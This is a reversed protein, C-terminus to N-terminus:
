ERSVGPANRDSGLQLSLFNAVEDIMDESRFFKGSGHGAGPVRRLTADVANEQLAAYLQESQAVPVVTDNEGHLLLMPASQPSVRHVPSALKMDEERGQLDGGLLKQLMWRPSAVGSGSSHEVWSQFESPAFFCVAADVACSTRTHAEGPIPHQATTALMASLHGGASFGWSAIRTADLAYERAHSRLWRVAARADTLAAPYKAESSLRYNIVAVAYGRRVLRQVQMPKAVPQNKNGAFWGGGFLVLVVPLAAKDGRPRYLDLLLPGSDPTSYVLDRRVDMDPEEKVKRPEAWFRIFTLLLRERLLFVVLVTLGVVIAWYM